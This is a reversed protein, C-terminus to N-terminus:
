INLWQLIGSYFDTITFVIYEQAEVRNIFYACLKQRTSIHKYTM